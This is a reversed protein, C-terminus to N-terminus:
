FAVQFYLGMRYHPCTDRRTGPRCDLTSATAAEAADPTLVRRIGGTPLDHEREKKASLPPM